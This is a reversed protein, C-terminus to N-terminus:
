NTHEPIMLSLLFTLREKLFIINVFCQFFQPFNSVFLMIPLVIINQTPTEQIKLYWIQSYIQKKFDPIHIENISNPLSYHSM